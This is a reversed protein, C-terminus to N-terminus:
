NFFLKRFLKFRMTTYLRSPLVVTVNRKLINSGLFFCEPDVDSDVGCDVHM